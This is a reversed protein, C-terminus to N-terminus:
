QVGGQHPGPALLLSDLIGGLAAYGGSSLGHSSEDSVVTTVHSTGDRPLDNLWQVFPDSASKQFCCGDRENYTVLVERDAALRVIDSYDLAGFVSPATQEWDGIDVGGAELRQSLPEFGSVVVAADIRPDLASYLLTTWGGGSRGLAVVVPDRGPAWRKHIWETVQGIGYLMRWVASGGGGQMDRIQMHPVRPMNLSVVSWGRALLWSITEAGIDTAEGGHGEHYIVIGGNPSPPEFYTIIGVANVDTEWSVASRFGQVLGVRTESAPRGIGPDERWVTAEPTTGGFLLKRYAGRLDAIPLLRPAQFSQDLGRLLLLRESGSGWVCNPVGDPDNLPVGRCELAEVPTGHDRVWAWLDAATCFVRSDPGLQGALGHCVSGDGATVTDIRSASIRGSSDALALAVELQAGVTQGPLGLWTRGGPVDSRNWTSSGLPRTWIVAQPVANGAPVWSIFTEDPGSTMRGVIPEGALQGPDIVSVLSSVRAAGATAVVRTTGVGQATIEGDPDVSAVQDNESRWVLDVSAQPDVAGQIMATAGIRARDSPGLVIARRDVQLKLDICAHVTSVVTPPHDRSVVVLSDCARQALNPIWSEIRLPRESVPGVISPSVSAGEGARILLAGRPPVPGPIRLVLPGLKRGPLDLITDASAVFRVRGAPLSSGGGDAGPEAGNECALLAGVVLWAARWRLSALRRRADTTRQPM